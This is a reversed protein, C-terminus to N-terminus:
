ANGKKMDPPLNWLKNLQDIEDTGLKEKIEDITSSKQQQILLHLALLVNEGYLERIRLNVNLSISQSVAFLEMDNVLEDKKYADEIFDLVKKTLKYVRVKADLGLGLGLEREKKDKKEEDAM